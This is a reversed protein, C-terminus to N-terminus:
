FYAAASPLPQRRPSCFLTAQCFTNDLVKTLDFMSRRVSPFWFYKSVEGLVTVVEWFPTDAPISYSVPSLTSLGTKSVRHIHAGDVTTGETQTVQLKSLGYWFVVAKRGNGYVRGGWGATHVLDDRDCLGGIRIQPAYSVVLAVDAERTKGWVLPFVLPFCSSLLLKLTIHASSPGAKWDGQLRQAGGQDKFDYYKCPVSYLLM